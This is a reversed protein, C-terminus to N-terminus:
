NNDTFFFFFNFGYIALFILKACNLNGKFYEIYKREKIYNNENARIRHVIFNKKKKDDYKM